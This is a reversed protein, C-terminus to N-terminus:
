AMYIAQGSAEPAPTPSAAPVATGAVLADLNPLAVGGRALYDNVLGPLEAKIQDLGVLLRRDILVEPTGAAPPAAGLAEHIRALSQLAESNGIDVAYPQFGSGYQQSITVLFISLEQFSPDAQDLFVLVQVSPAPTPVVVTPLNELSPYDVGGQALYQDILGELRAPIDAGGILVQDGIVLAPVGGQDPEPVGLSRELGLMIKYGEVNNHINVYQYEVRDGYKEYVTPLYNEMVEHCHPCTESYFLIFRVVGPEATADPLIGQARATWGWLLSLIAALGALLFRSKKM